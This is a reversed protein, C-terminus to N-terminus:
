QRPRHIPKPTAENPWGNCITFITLGLNLISTSICFDYNDLIFISRSKNIIVYAFIMIIWFSSAGVEKLSWISEQLIPRYGINLRSLHRGKSCMTWDQWSVDKQHKNSVILREGDWVCIHVIIYSSHGFLVLTQEVKSQLCRIILTKIFLNQWSMIQQTHM